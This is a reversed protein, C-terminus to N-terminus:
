PLEKLFPGDSVVSWTLIEGRLGELRAVRQELTTKRAEVSTCGTFECKHGNPYVRCMEPRTEYIGCDGNPQLNNCSYFNAHKQSIAGHVVGFRPNFGFHGLYTVMQAIEPAQRLLEFPAYPLAFSKCCHGTCRSM